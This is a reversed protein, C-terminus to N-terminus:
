IVICKWCCNNRCGAFPTADHCSAWARITRLECRVGQFHASLEDTTALSRIDFYLASAQGEQKMALRAQVADRRSMLETEGLLHHPFPPLTPALFGKSQLVLRSRSAGRDKGGSCTRPTLGLKLNNPAGSSM